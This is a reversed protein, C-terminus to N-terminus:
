IMVGIMILVAIAIAVYLGNGTLLQPVQNQLLEIAKQGAETAADPAIIWSFPYAAKDIFYWASGVLWYGNLAGFVAGLIMEMPTDRNFRGSEAFRRFAPTQYGLFGCVFLVILDLLLAKTGSLDGLLRPLVEQIIFLALIGSVIVVLEKRLGRVAGIIGFLVIFITFLINLSVM